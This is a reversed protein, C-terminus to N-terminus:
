YSGDSLLGKSCDLVFRYGALGKSYVIIESFAIELEISWGFM